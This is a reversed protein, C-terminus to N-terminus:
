LYQNVKQAETMEVTWLKHFAQDVFMLDWVIFFDLWHAWKVASFTCCWIDCYGFTVPSLSSSCAELSGASAGAWCLCDSLIAHWGEYHSISMLDSTVISSQTGFLFFIHSRFDLPHFCPHGWKGYSIPLSISADVTYFGTIISFYEVVHLVVGRGFTLLTLTSFGQRLPHM